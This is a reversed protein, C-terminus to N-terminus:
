ILTAAESQKRITMRNAREERNRELLQQKTLDRKNGMNVKYTEDFMDMQQYREM